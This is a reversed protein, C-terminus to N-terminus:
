KRPLPISTSHSVSPDREAAVQLRVTSAIVIAEDFTVLGLSQITAIDIDMATEQRRFLGARFDFECDACHAPALLTVLNSCLYLLAGQCISESKDVLSRVLFHTYKLVVLSDPNPLM